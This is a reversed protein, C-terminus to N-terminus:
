AKINKSADLVNRVMEAMDQIVVPKLLFGKIGIIEAKEKNMRESFGTCIIVPIDPRIELVKRTLQDGTLNPMNMDTIILDFAFPDATLVALAEVSGTQITVKYNLRELMQRELHAVPPEDDVLLINETGRPLMLAEKKPAYTMSKEALPLFVSFVSGQGLESSVTVEGNYKKVIGYVTSLGLGTGKGKEKTTFYPDFIKNIVGQEIGAGTDSVKLVAYKGPELSNGGKDADDVLVERLQVSIKGSKSEVAHYANTVLNMAIQHIQTPDAMVPGCDKQIDEVIEIDVPITRRGLKLIEKLIHQVHVPLLQQDSQRSFALIQKVLEGGRKGANYIEKINKYEQSNRSFDELMLESYAIIPFLLNNFDHAIGGALSGIAELKQSQQLRNEIEKQGTIDNLITLILDKEDLKLMSAFMLGILASGDRAKFTMELGDVQGHTELERLFVRRQEESYLGIETTTKGYFEELRYGTWEGLKKNCAIIKGTKVETLAIPQPSLNFINRFRKESEKLAKEAKRRETVDHIISLLVGRGKFEIGSSYVEVDRITGDALRHCFEFKNQRRTMANEMEKTVQDESLINIDQIRMTRIEALSWGYFNEAATNAEVIRGDAPDFMLKVASHHYFSNRFKEESKRLEEEARQRRLINLVL